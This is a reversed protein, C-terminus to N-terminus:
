STTAAAWLKQETCEVSAHPALFHRRSAATDRHCTFTLRQLGARLRESQAEAQSQVLLMICFAIHTSPGVPSGLKEKALEARRREKELFFNHLSRLEMAM